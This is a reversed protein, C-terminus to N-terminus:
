ATAGQETNRLRALVAYKDCGPRFGFAADLFAAELFAANLFAAAPAFATAVFGLVTRGSAVGVVATTLAASFRVGRPDVPPDGPRPM